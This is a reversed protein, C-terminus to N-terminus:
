CLSFCASSCFISAAAHSCFRTNREGKSSLRCGAVIAYLIVLAVVVVNFWYDFTGDFHKRPDLVIVLVPVITLEGVHFLFTLVVAAQDSCEHGLDFEGVRGTNDAKDDLMCSIGELLSVHTVNRIEDMSLAKRTEPTARDVVEYIAVADCELSYRQQKTEELEADTLQHYKLLVWRPDFAQPTTSSMSSKCFRTAPTSPNPIDGHTYPAATLNIRAFYVSDLITQLGLLMSDYYVQFFDVEVDAYIDQYRQHIRYRM